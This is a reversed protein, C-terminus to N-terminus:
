EEDESNVTTLGGAVRDEYTGADVPVEVTEEQQIVEEPPITTTPKIEGSM